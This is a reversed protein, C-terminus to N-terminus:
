SASDCAVTRSGFDAHFRKAAGYNSFEQGYAVFESRMHGNADYGSCYWGRAQGVSLSPLRTTQSAHWVKLPEQPYWRSSAEQREVSSSIRVSISQTLM